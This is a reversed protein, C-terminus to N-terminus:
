TAHVEACCPTLNVDRRGRTVAPGGDAPIKWGDVPRYKGQEDKKVHDTLIVDRLSLQVETPNYIEVMDSFDSNTDAPPTNKNSSLIENIKLASIDQAELFGAPFFLLPFFAAAQFFRYRLQNMVEEIVM